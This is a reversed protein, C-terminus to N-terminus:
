KIGVKEVVDRRYLPLHRYYVELTLISLSTIMLRGGIGGHPDAEPSWSGEQHKYAANKGQDQEKVLADRMKKNWEKWNDGGLHHMVQTAYYYYYM